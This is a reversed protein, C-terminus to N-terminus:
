EYYITSRVQSSDHIDISNDVIFDEISGKTRLYKSLTHRNVKLFYAAKTISYPKNDIYIIKTQGNNLIQEEVTAWRINLPYNNEKCEKCGGCFYGLDNNIRDVSMNPPRLGLINFFNKFSHKLGKCMGRIRYSEINRVRDKAGRWSNHTPSGKPPIKTSYVENNVMRACGCSWARGKTLESVPRTITNGCQCECLWLTVRTSNKGTPKLAKLLGFQQNSIDIM